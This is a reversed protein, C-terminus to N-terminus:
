DNRNGKALKTNLFFSFIPRALPSSPSPITFFTKGNKREIKEKRVQKCYCAVKKGGEGREESMFFYVVGRGVFRKM